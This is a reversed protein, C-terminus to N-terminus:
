EKIRNAVHEAIFGTWKINFFIDIDTMYECYDPDAATKAAFETDFEDAWLTIMEVLSRSGGISEMIRGRFEDSLERWNYGLSFSLDFLTEKQGYNLPESM